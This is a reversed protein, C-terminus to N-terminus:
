WTAARNVAQRINLPRPQVVISSSPVYDAVTIAFRDSLASDAEAVNASGIDSNYSLMYAIDSTLINHLAYSNSSDVDAALSITATGNVTNPTLTGSGVITGNLRMEWVSNAMRLAVIAWGPATFPASSADVGVGCTEIALKVTGYGNTEVGAGQPYARNGGWLTQPGSSFLSSPLNVVILRTWSNQEANPPGGTTYMADTTGADGVGGNMRFVAHGNLISKKLVPAGKVVVAYHSASDDAVSTVTSGDAGTQDDPNLWWNITGLTTLDWSM